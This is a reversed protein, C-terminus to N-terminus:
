RTSCRSCRTSSLSTRRRRSAASSTYGVNFLENLNKVLWDCVMVGRELPILKRKETKAYERAKLTEITAAYTSPRGVGNEELAKILSAESYHSPGKTMKEDAIWKVVDLGEGQSLAPLEAVEDTDEDDEGDARKPSLSLRMVKLFGEFEIDTASATFM